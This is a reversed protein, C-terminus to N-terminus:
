TLCLRKFFRRIVFGRFFATALLSYRTLLLPMPCTDWWVVVWCLMVSCYFHWGYFTSFVVIFCVCNWCFTLFICSWCLFLLSVVGVLLLLFVVGTFFLVSVVGVIVRLSVVRIYFCFFVLSGFLCVCVLPPSPHCGSSCSSRLTPLRSRLASQCPGVM